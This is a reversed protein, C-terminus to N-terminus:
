KSERAVHFLIMRNPVPQTVKHALTATKSAFSGVLRFAECEEKSSQLLCSEALSAMGSAKFLLNKTPVRALSDVFLSKNSVLAM